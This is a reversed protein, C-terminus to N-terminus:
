FRVIRFISFIYFIRDYEMNYMHHLVALLPPTTPDCSSPSNGLDNSLLWHM